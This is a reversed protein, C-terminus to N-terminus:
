DVRANACLGSAGAGILAPTNPMCRVIARGGGLWADIQDLRIGAAISIILPRRRQAVEHLATCVTKMVQPKVALVITDAARAADVGQAHVGVGFDRALAGRLDENPEAVDIREAAMGARVLGGILSRAMNGGGIFAVSATLPSRDATAATM